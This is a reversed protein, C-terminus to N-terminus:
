VAQQKIQRAVRRTKWQNVKELEVQTLQGPDPLFVSKAVWNAMYNAESDVWEVMEKAEDRRVPLSTYKEKFAVLARELSQHRGKLRSPNDLESVLTIGKACVEYTEHDVLLCTTAKLMKMFDYGGWRWGYYHSFMPHINPNIYQAEELLGAISNKLDEHFLMARQARVVKRTDANRIRETIFAAKQESTLSKIYNILSQRKCEKSRITAPTKAFVIKIAHKRDETSCLRSCLEHLRHITTKDLM